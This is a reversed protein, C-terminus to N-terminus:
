SRDMEEGDCREGIREKKRGRTTQGGEARGIEEDEQRGAKRGEM